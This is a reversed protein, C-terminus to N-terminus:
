ILFPLLKTLPTEGLSEIVIFGPSETIKNESGSESLNQKSKKNTNAM